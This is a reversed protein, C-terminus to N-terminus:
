SRATCLTFRKDVLGHEALLAAALTRIRCCLVGSRRDATASGHAHLRCGSRGHAYAAIAKFRRSRCRRRSVTRAWASGRTTVPIIKKSRRLAFGRDDRVFAESAARSTVRAPVGFEVPSGFGGRLGAGNLLAIRIGVDHAARVVPPAMASERDPWRRATRCGTCTTFSASRVHHRRAADGHVGDRAADFVDEDSIRQSSKTTSSATASRERDAAETRTRGRFRATSPTRTLRQGPGAARGPGRTPTEGNRSRGTRPLLAHHPRGHM